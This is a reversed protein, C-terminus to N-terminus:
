MQAACDGVHSLYIYYRLTDCDVYKDLEGKTWKKLCDLRGLVNSNDGLYSQGGDAAQHNRRQTLDLVHSPLIPTAPFEGFLFSAEITDGNRVADFSEIPKDDRVLCISEATINRENSLLEGSDAHAM